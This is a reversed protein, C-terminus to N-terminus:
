GKYGIQNKNFLEEDNPPIVATLDEYTITQSMKKSREEIPLEALRLNQIKVAELVFKRITRANGFYKDRKYYMDYCLSELHEFAKISLFLQHESFMSKAIQVLQAPNYDEFKLTKDFRSKLGPNANMFNQMNEPYGAVFVFFKGRDDEMRKILTQIAENGYDGQLGNFNSLAYAEDIFLVGSMAEDIRESTKIATQGVFGAVLGQRDTEVIHGRELIGIAKYIKALIRAVTTKGTGPNGVFVTHLYFSSLVNKGSERYYRVVQVIEHIQKKVQEMGIMSDLESLAMALLPEDVPIKPILKQNIDRIDIVDKEIITRLDNDKTKIPHSKAMVRLGLNIKAREILDFVFRANGFALDRNRFAEVILENVKIQAKADLIVEKEECAYSAIQILEQPLYDSFSYFHKFRSRLGPNSEIFTKMEKPYGAAIVCLDGKGNSMEKVLIEIAERGFDKSDELSRALSYAEDIFLVGGRAKELAEKVKPATQGIYEGVLESRDVEHVHGKSLLGMKRYLHGMMKAVTTKGTGPNGMFVLHLNMPEKEKFGKERRLKLFKLYQAHDRVQKKIEYLGILNDLEVMLQDFTRYDEEVTSISIPMLSDPLMLPASGETFEEQVLFNLVGIITDMFVIEIKYKGEQWSGKTNSGFGATFTILKEDKKVHKFRVINAKLDGSENYYRIMIECNWAKQFLVNDMAVETFVYRTHEAAFSAFYKRDGEDMDEYHGEFLRVSQLNVYNNHTFYNGTDIIYFVKSGLLEGNLTAEWIYEGERWFSGEKKNGWGERIYIVNDYKSIKKSFTLTCIVKSKDNVEKCTLVIEADWSELDFKKNHFSLEAYIYSTEMKDFVQRYKKKNDALWETSSYVRLEKFRFNQSDINDKNDDLM